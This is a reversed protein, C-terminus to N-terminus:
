LVTTMVDTIAGTNGPIDSRMIPIITDASRTQSPVIFQSLIDSHTHTHPTCIQTTLMTLEATSQGGSSCVNVSRSLDQDPHGSPTGVCTM